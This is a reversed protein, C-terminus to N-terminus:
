EGMRIRIGFISRARSRGNSAPGHLNGYFADALTAVKKGFDEAVNVAPRTADQAQPILPDYDITTLIPPFWGYQRAGKQHFSAATYTSHKTRQNLVVFIHEKLIRHNSQLNETLLRATHATARIGDLTPRAVILVLNAALLPQLTWAEESPPLDLLIAGYNSAYSAIVLSRISHAAEPITTAANAYTYSECPAIIVDLGDHTQQISEKFGHPGPHAFFEQASPQFRLDMRLPAAPPLGFSFLLTRINRRAALEFGLGEALTSKGTGGQASVFAIVRTGVVGASRESREIVEGLPSISQRRARETQVASYGRKLVEAPAAPQIYVGRVSDVGEVTGQLDAWGAPLLVIVLARALRALQKTLADVGPAVDAYIILLDPEGESLSQLFMDWSAQMFAMTMQEDNAALVYERTIQTLDPGAFGVSIIM